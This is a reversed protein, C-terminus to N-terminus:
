TKPSGGLMLAGKKWRRVGSRKAHWGQKRERTADVVPLANGVGLTSSWWLLQLGHRAGSRRRPALRTKGEEWVPPWLVLPRVWQDGHTSPLLGICSLM